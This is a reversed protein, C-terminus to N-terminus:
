FLLRMMSSVDRLRDAEEEFQCQVLLHHYAEEFEAEDYELNNETLFVRFENVTAIQFLGERFSKDAQVKKIFRIANQISM